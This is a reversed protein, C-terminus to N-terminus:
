FAILFLWWVESGKKEEQGGLGGFKPSTIVNFYVQEILTQELIEEENTLNDEDFRLELGDAGMKGQIYDKVYLLTTM